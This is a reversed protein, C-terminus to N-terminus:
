MIVSQWIESPVSYQGNKGKLMLRVFYWARMAEQEVNFAREYKGNKVMGDFVFKDLAPAVTVSAATFAIFVHINEVGEGKAKSEQGPVLVENHHVLHEGWSVTGVLNNGVFIHTSLTKVLDPIILGMEAKQEDTVRPNNRVYRTLFLRISTDTPDDPRGSEYDKRAALMEVEQAHTFSKTKVIEWADEWRLKKKGATATLLTFEATAATPLGWTSMHATMAAVLTKQFDDFKGNPGPIFDKKTITM